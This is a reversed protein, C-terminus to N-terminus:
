AAMSAIVDQAALKVLETPDGLHEELVEIMAALNGTQAANTFAPRAAEPLKDYGDLVIQKVIMEGVDALVADQQEQDLIDIGLSTVVQQRLEDNM